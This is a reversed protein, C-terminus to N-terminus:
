VPLSGLPSGSSINKFNIPIWGSGAVTKYSSTAACQWSTSTATSPLSLGQCQDGATSTATPDPVSMAQLSASGLSTAVDTAYLNMASNITSLDSLRNADRAQQLLAAPNLTLIVIVALVAIIAIVVLLEILTFGSRKMPM